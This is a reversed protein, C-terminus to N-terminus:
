RRTIKEIRPLTTEERWPEHFTKLLREKNRQNAEERIVRPVREDCINGESDRKPTLKKHKGYMRLGVTGLVLVAGTSICFGPNERLFNLTGEAYELGQLAYEGIQQFTERYEM